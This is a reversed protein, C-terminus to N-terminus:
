FQALVAALLTVALTRTPASQLLLVLLSTVTTALQWSGVLVLVMGTGLARLGGYTATEATLCYEQPATLGIQMPMLWLWNWAARAYPAWFAFYLVTTLSAILAACARRALPHTHHQPGYLLWHCLDICTAGPLLLLLAVHVATRRLARLLPM